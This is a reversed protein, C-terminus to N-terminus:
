EESSFISFHVKGYKRTELYNPHKSFNFESSHEIILWGENRLLKKEFIIDPIETVQKQNYPPDAFIFDFTDNCKKLFLYADAIKTQITQEFGLEYVTKKIFNYHLFIAEVLTIDKCGRSAFEYSINGTGSFLDLVKIDEINFNNEIINFLGEKAIDTTPRARFNRPPTIRKKKYQGSIIRM